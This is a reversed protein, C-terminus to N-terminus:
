KVLIKSTKIFGIFNTTSRAWKQDKKKVQKKEYIKKNKNTHAKYTDDQYM